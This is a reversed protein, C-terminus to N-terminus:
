STSLNPMCKSPSSEEGIREDSGSCTNWSYALGHILTFGAWLIFGCWGLKPASNGQMNGSSCILMLWHLERKLISSWSKTTIKYFESSKILRWESRYFLAVPNSFEILSETSSSYILCAAAVGELGIFNLRLLLSITFSNAWLFGKAVLSLVRLLAINVPTTVKSTWNLFKTPNANEFVRKLWPFFKQMSIFVVVLRTNLFRGSM